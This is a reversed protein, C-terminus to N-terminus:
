VWSTSSITSSASAREYVGVAYLGVKLDAKVTGKLDAKM